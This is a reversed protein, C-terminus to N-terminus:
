RWCGSCPRWRGAPRRTTWRIVNVPTGAALSELAWCLHPLDIRYMTACMCVVPSLFHIEQEPHEHKLRQVLHLETGIAWRDGAAVGRSGPHDPRDLRGRRSARGGGHYVRSPGHDQHGSVERSVGGVHEPLFMQHVSCHGNWLISGAPASRRPRTAAWTRSAPTGSPCKRWASRGHRPGHQTGPASRSLVARSAAPCLGLGFRGPRQGVHLRDRRPPRLLGELQGGLQRLHDADGRGHRDSRGTAALLGRGPRHRGHRGNLLRRGPRAPGRHRAGGRRALQEPGTPSSTPRKPWSTSAASPSRGASTTQRGGIGVLQYSDGRLDALAIVEDQQYHHGLILLERGMRRRVAEIRSVLEAPDLSKYPRIEDTTM